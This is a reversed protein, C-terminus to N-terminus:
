ELFAMSVDSFTEISLSVSGFGSFMCPKQSRMIVFLISKKVGIDKLDYWNSELIKQGVDGSATILAEGYYCFLFVQSLSFATYSISFLLDALSTSTLIQFGCASIAVAGQIITYFFIFTFLSEIDNSIEILEQHRIVHKRLDTVRGENLANKIDEGIIIFETSLVFIDAFLYFDASMVNVAVNTADWTLWLLSIIWNFNNATDDFPFWVAVAQKRVNNFILEYLIGFAASFVITYLFVIYIKYIILFWKLRSQLNCKEQEAQTSPFSIRLKELINLISKRKTFFLSAKFVNYPFLTVHPLIRVVVHLNKIDIVLRIAFMTITIWMGIYCAFFYWKMLIEKIKTRRSTIELPIINLGILKYIKLQLEFFDELKIMKYSTVQNNNQEAM